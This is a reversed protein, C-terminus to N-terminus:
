SAAREKVWGRIEALEEELPERLVVEMQLWRLHEEITLLEQKTQDLESRLAPKLPDVGGFERALEDIVM